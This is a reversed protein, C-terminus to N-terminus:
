PGTWAQVPGSRSTSWEGGDITSTLFSHFQVEVELHAKIVHVPVAKDKQTM